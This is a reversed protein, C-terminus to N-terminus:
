IKKRLQKGLAGGPHFSLFDEKTFNLDHSLQVSIADLLGLIVTTSTTPALNYEDGENIPGCYLNYTNTNDISKNCHILIQIINPRHNSLHDMLNLLEDTTGSRSINIIIDNNSIYGANGHFYHVTDLYMAPIGLSVMTDSIKAAIHANKGLGTIIIKSNNSKAVKLLKYYIKSYQETNIIHELNSLAQIANDICIKSQNFM